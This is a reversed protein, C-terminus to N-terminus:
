KAVTKGNIVRLSVLTNRLQNSVTSDFKSGCKGKYITGSTNPKPTTTATTSTSAQTTTTTQLGLVVTEDSGDLTINSGPCAELILGQLYQFGDINGLATATNLLGQCYASQEGEFDLQIITRKTYGELAQMVDFSKGYARLTNIADWFDAAKGDWVKLGHRLQRLLESAVEEFTKGSNSVNDYYATISTNFFVKMVKDLENVDSGLETELRRLYVADIYQSMTLVDKKGLFHNYIAEVTPIPLMSLSQLVKSAVRESACSEDTGCSQVTTEARDIYQQVDDFAQLDDFTALATAALTTLIVICMRAM